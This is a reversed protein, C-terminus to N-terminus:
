ARPAVAAVESRPDRSIDTGYRDYRAAGKRGVGTAVFGLPPVPSLALLRGFEALTAVQVYGLKAVAILADVYQSVMFADYFETMPPTDVLVWDAGTRLAAFVAPLSPSSLLRDPQEGRRGGAPLVRLSGRVSPPTLAADLKVDALLEEVQDLPLEGLALETLGFETPVDFLRSLTPQRLDADVLVVNRASQALSVALNAVTTTKGEGRVASTFLVAQATGHLRAFELNAQLMKIAEAHVSAPDSLMSVSSDSRSRWRRAPSPIRALLNLRLQASIEETTRARGDRADILFALATGLILGLVLALASNRGPNPATQTASGAPSVVFSSKPPAARAAALDNRLSLLQQFSPSNTLATKSQATGLQSTITAAVGSLESSLQARVLRSQYIAFANAYAASLRSALSPTTATVSVNILDANAEETLTVSQLLQEPTMTQVHAARLAARAVAPIQALDIQTSVLREFEAPDTVSSAANPLAAAPNQNVLMKSTATYQPAQRRTVLYAAGAMVVAVLVILVKQRYLTGLYDNMDTSKDSKM